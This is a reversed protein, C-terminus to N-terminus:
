HASAAPHDLAHEDGAVRAGPRSVDLAAVATAVAAAAAV